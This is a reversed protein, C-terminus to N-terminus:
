KVRKILWGKAEMAEISWGAATKNGKIKGARLQKGIAAASLGSIMALDTANIEENRELKLSIQAFRYFIGIYSGNIGTWQEWSVDQLEKNDVFPNFWVLQLINELIKEVEEPRGGVGTMWNYLQRLPVAIPFPYENGLYNVTTSKIFVGEKALGENFYGLKRSLENFAMEYDRLLYEFWKENLVLVYKSM